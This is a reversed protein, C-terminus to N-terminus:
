AASGDLSSIHILSLGVLGDAAVSFQRQFLRAAASMNQGYASDVTQNNIATYLGSLANLYTQMHGVDQSRAGSIHILSLTYAVRM